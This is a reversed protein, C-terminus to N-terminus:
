TIMLFVVRLWSCIVKKGMSLPLNLMNKSVISARSRVKNLALITTKGHARYSLSDTGDDMVGTAIEHLLPKWLIPQM